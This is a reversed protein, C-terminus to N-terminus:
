ENSENTDRREQYLYISSIIGVFCLKMISGNTLKYHKMISELLTWSSFWILFTIFVLQLNM